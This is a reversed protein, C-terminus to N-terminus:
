RYRRSRRGASSDAPPGPKPPKLDLGIFGPAGYQLRPTFLSQVLLLVGATGGLSLIYSTGRWWGSSPSLWAAWGLRFLGIWLSVFLFLFGYIMAPIESGAQAAQQVMVLLDGDDTHKRLALHLFPVVCCLFPHLALVLILPPSLNTLRIEITAWPCASRYLRPVM